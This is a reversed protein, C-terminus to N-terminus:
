LTGHRDPDFEKVETVVLNKFGPLRYWSPTVAVREGNHGELFVAVIMMAPEVEQRAHEDRPLVMQCSVSDRTAFHSRMVLAIGKDIRVTDPEGSETRIVATTDDRLSVPGVYPVSYLSGAYASRVLTPEYTAVWVAALILALGFALTYLYLIRHQRIASPM